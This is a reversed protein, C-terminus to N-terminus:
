GQFVLNKIKFSINNTIENQNFSVASFRPAFTISCIASSRCFIGPSLPNEYRLMIFIFCSNSSYEDYGIRGDTVASIRSTRLSSSPSDFFSIPCDDVAWNSNKQPDAEGVVDENEVFAFGGFLSEEIDFLCRGPEPRNGHQLM